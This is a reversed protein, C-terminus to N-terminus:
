WESPQPLIRKVGGHPGLFAVNESHEVFRMTALEEIQRKDISPQFGFDFAELTKKIPFGALQIQKEYARQQKNKTEEAFIYDLIDAANLNDKLVQELYNDLIEHTNEIKLQELNNRLWKYTFESM